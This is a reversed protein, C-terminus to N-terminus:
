STRPRLPDQLDKLDKLDRASGNGLSSSVMWLPEELVKPNLIWSVLHLIWSEDKPIWSEPNLIWSSSHLICSEDKPISSQPNLIWSEPNMFFSNLIWSWSEPNLIWWSAPNLIWFQLYQSHLVFCLNLIWSELLFVLSEFFFWTAILLVWSLDHLSVIWYSPSPISEVIVNWQLVGLEPYFSSFLTWSKPNLVQSKPNLIWSTPNPICFKSNLICSEPNLIWKSPNPAWSELNLILLLLIAPNTQAAVACSLELLCM